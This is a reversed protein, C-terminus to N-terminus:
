QCELVARKGTRLPIPLSATETAADDPDISRHKLVAESMKDALRLRVFGSRKALRINILHLERKFPIYSIVDTTKEIGM